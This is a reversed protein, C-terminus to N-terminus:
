SISFSRRPESRLSLTTDDARGPKVMTDTFENRIVWGDANGIGEQFCAGTRYAECFAAAVGHPRVGIQLCAASPM